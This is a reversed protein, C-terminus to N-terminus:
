SQRRWRARSAMALSQARKEKRYNWLIAVLGVCWYLGQSLPEARLCGHLPRPGQEVLQGGLHRRADFPLPLIPGYGLLSTAPAISYCSPPRQAPAM